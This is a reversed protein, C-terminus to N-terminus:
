EGDVTGSKMDRDVMGEWAMRLHRKADRIERREKEM